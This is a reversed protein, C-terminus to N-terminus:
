GKLYNVHKTVEQIFTIHNEKTYRLFIIIAYRLATM